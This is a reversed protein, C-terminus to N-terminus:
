VHLLIPLQEREIREIRNTYKMKHLSWWVVTAYDLKPCIMSVISKRITEEDLYTFTMRVELQNAKVENKM